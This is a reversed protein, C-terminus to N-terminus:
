SEAGTISLVNLKKKKKKTKREWARPMDMIQITLVHLKDTGVKFIM